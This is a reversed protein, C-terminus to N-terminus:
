FIFFYMNVGFMDEQNVGSVFNQRRKNLVTLMLGLKLLTYFTYLVFFM